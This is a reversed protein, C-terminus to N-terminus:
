YKEWIITKLFPTQGFHAAMVKESGGGMMVRQKLTDTM